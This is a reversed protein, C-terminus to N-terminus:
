KKYKGYWAVSVRWSVAYLALVALLLVAALWLPVPLPGSGTGNQQLEDMVAGGGGLLAGLGVFTLIYIMSAKEAGFRYLLPLSIGNILLIACVSGALLSLVDKDPATGTRLPIVTVFLGGIVVAAAACFLGILYKEAVLTKKSVPFTRGYEVWGVSQDYALLNIPLIGLFVAAYSVPFVYASSTSFVWIVLLVFLEEISVPTLTSGAPVLERKVLAEAGYATVRRSVIANKDLEELQGATGHWLAYEERLTDKDECLLLKGKHLFAITDCLKELDSVIHSSILIAHNEDRVFDLLLDILEDRVVPDLGSTAEDLLLLKPHHSFAVALCQKMKMGTSYDGYKKNEPLDFRRCWDAYAAADWNPYIGAMVKGVQPATLCTPIGEGGMVVGIDAKALPTIEEQGFLKVTGAERDIMDLILKITTSKGAGNEGILGCVTGGPLELDIPGLAFDPYHKELGHLELANM